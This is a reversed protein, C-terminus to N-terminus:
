KQFDKKVARELLRLVYRPPERTGMEWSELTRKPIGYKEAFRAQTLGTRSRIEKASPSLDHENKELKAGKM